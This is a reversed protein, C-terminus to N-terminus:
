EMLHHCKHLCSCLGATFPLGSHWSLLQGAAAAAASAAAAVAAASSRVDTNCTSQARAFAEYEPVTMSLGSPGAGDFTSYTAQIVAGNDGSAETPKRSQARSTHPKRKPRPPPITLGTLLSDEETCEGSAAAARQKEVRTFFKQHSALVFATLGCVIRPRYACKCRTCVWSLCM